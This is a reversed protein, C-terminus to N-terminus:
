FEDDDGSEMQIGFYEMETDSLDLTDEFFEMASEYDDEILAHLSNTAIEDLRLYSIYDDETKCRFCDLAKALCEAETKNSHRGFYWGCGVTWDWYANGEDLGHVVAYEDLNERRLILAYNGKKM